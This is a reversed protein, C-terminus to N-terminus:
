SGDALDRECRPNTNERMALEAFGVVGALPNNLEHAVGSVLQGLASLREAHLLQEQIKQMRGRERKIELLLQNRELAVAVLGAMM